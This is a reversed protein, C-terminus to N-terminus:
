SYEFSGNLGIFNHWCCSWLYIAWQSDVKMELAEYLITYIMTISKNKLLQHLSVVITIDSGEVCDDDSWRNGQNDAIHWQWSM